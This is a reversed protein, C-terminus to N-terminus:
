SSTLAGYIIETEGFRDDSGLLIILIRRGNREFLSILNGGAEDTFGTKGGRFDPHGAFRNTNALTREAGTRAEQIRAERQMTAALLDPYNAQLYDVLRALDRATSQNLVSLGTPDFFTTERMGLEAARIQMADILAARGYTEALAEAADNSSAVLMAAVLDRAAFAEGPAFQGADGEAAIAAASVSVLREAGLEEFAVAATMLKTLSAIPWRQNSARELLLAGSGLDRALLASAGIQPVTLPAPAPRPAAAAGLGSIPQLVAAAQAQPAAVSTAQFQERPTREPPAEARPRTVAVSVLLAAAFLFSQLHTRTM